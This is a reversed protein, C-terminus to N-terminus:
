RRSRITDYTEEIVRDIEEGIREWDVSPDAHAELVALFAEFQARLKEKDDCFM